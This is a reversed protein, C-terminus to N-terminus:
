EEMMIIDVERVDESLHSDVDLIETDPYHFVNIKYEGEPLYAFNYALQHSTTNYSDKQLTMDYSKSNNDVVQATVEGDGKYEVTFVIGTQAEDFKLTYVEKSAQTRDENSVIEINKVTMSQPAINVTWKGPSSEFMDCNIEGAEKSCDVKMSKGDPSTVLMQIMGTSSTVTAPDFEAHVTMNSTIADLNFTFQQSFAALQEEESKYYPINYDVSALDQEGKKFNYYRFFGEGALRYYGSELDEPLTISVYGNKTITYDNLQYIEYSQYFHTDAKVTAQMYTTGAYFTIDYSANEEMGMIIGAENIMSENVPNGNISEIMIHSSEKNKIEDFASTSRIIDQNASFTIFGDHFEAGYIGISYGCDKYRELVLSKETNVEVSAQAILENCYYNPILKDDKLTWACKRTNLDTGKSSADLDHILYFKTGDKVYYKGNTLEEKEVAKMNYKADKDEFIEMDGCGVNLICISICTVIYVIMRILNKNM